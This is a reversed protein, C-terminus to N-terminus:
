ARVQGRHQMRAAAGEFGLGSLGALGATRGTALLLLNGAPGSIQKPGEGASWTADTAVFRLGGFRREPRGYFRSSWADDLAPVVREPPMLRRRGLPRAIDQGHVLIDVLPDLPNSLPLRRDLGATARLQSVLEAPSFRAARERAWSATARNFDGGARVVRVLTEVMTECASLTLHAVVDHVTWGSCLSDVSWDQDNLSELFDALELREARVDPLMHVRHPQVYGEADQTTTVNTMAREGESIGAWIEGAETADRNPREAGDGDGYYFM